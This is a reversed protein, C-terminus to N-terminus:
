AKGDAIIKTETGATEYKQLVYCNKQCAVAMSTLKKQKKTNQLLKQATTMSLSQKLTAFNKLGRKKNEEAKSATNQVVFVSFKPFV